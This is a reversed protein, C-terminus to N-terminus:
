NHVFIVTGDGNPNFEYFGGNFLSEFYLGLEVSNNMINDFQYDEYHVLEHLLVSFTILSNLAIANPSNIGNSAEQEYAIVLDIDIYIVNPNTPNFKGKIEGQTPHVGLQEIRIEVGYGWQLDKKIQEQSVGTLNHIINKLNEDESFYPDNLDNKVISTFHPYLIEYNSQLPYKFFPSLSVLTNNLSSNRIQLMLTQSEIFPNELLYKFANSMFQNSAIVTFNSFNMSTLQSFTTLAFIVATTNEPTIGNNNRMFVVINPFLWFNNELLSKIEPNSSSLTRTFAAVQTALVFDPNNLDAEGDYPNPIYIGSYDTGGGSIPTGGTSIHIPDADLNDGIIGGCYVYSVSQSICQSCWDCNTKNPCNCNENGYNIAQCFGAMNVASFRENYVMKSEELESEGEIPEDKVTNKFIIENWQEGYKEYVLNYYETSELLETIPYIKFSYTVKNDISTYKIIGTTDTLFENEITRSSESNSALSRLIKFDKINTERKFQEFTLKSENSKRIQEEYLDKECSSLVFILCVLTLKLAKIFLKKM